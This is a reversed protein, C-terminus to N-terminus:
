IVSFRWTRPRPVQRADPRGPFAPAQHAWRPLARRNLPQPSWLGLSTLPRQGRRRRRRVAQLRVPVGVVEPTPGARTFGAGQAWSSGNRFFACGDPTSPM